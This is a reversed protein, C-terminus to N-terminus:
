ARRGRGPPRTCDNSPRLRADQAADSIQIGGNRGLWRQGIQSTLHGADPDIPRRAVHKM